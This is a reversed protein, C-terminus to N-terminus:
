IIIIDAGRGTLVGGVSTAIRCGQATTEFEPVAQHRPSLRTPFISQYWNSAVVRRGDRSLKDALEQGGPWARSLGDGNFGPPSACSSRARIAAWVGCRPLLDVGPAVESPTDASQHDTPPPVFHGRLRLSNQCALCAPKLGQRDIGDM